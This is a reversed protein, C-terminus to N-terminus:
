DSQLSRYQRPSMGTQSRFQRSFYNSDNFGLDFAIDTISDPTERLRRCARAIRIRLLYQRPSIGTASKFHRLLSRTSLGAERALVTNPIEETYRSELFDIAKGVPTPIEKRSFHDMSFSRCLLVMFQQFLGAAMVDAGPRKASLEREIGALLGDMRSLLEPEAHLCQAATEPEESSRAFDILRNFEPITFLDPIKKKLFDRCFLINYLNLNQLNQYAHEQGTRIILIDGACVPFPRQNIIHEGTGRTIVVMEAFDHTHSSIVRGDCVLSFVQFPFLNLRYNWSNFLANAAMRGELSIRAIGAATLTIIGAAAFFFLM